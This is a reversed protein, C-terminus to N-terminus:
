DDIGLMDENIVAGEPIAVLLRRGWLHRGRFEMGQQLQDGDRLASISQVETRLDESGFVYGADLHTESTIVAAVQRESFLEGTGDGLLGDCLQTGAIIDAGYQPTFTPGSGNRTVSCHAKWGPRPEVPLTYLINGRGMASVARDCPMGRVGLASSAWIMAFKRPERRVFRAAALMEEWEDTPIEVLMACVDDSCASPVVFGCDELLRRSQEAAESKQERVVAPPPTAIPSEPRSAPELENPM